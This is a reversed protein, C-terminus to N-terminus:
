LPPRTAAWFQALTMSGSPKFQSLNESAGWKANHLDYELMHEQADSLGHVPLGSLAKRILGPAPKESLADIGSRIRVIRARNGEASFDLQLTVPSNPTRARWSIGNLSSFPVQISSGGGQFALIHHIPPGPIEIAFRPEHPRQASPKGCAACLLAAAAILSRLVM